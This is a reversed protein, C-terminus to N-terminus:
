RVPSGDGFDPAGNLRANVALEIMATLLLACFKLKMAKNADSFTSSKTEAVILEADVNHIDAASAHIDLGFVAMDLKLASFGREMQKWEFEEPATIEHTGVYQETSTGNVFTDSAGFVRLFYNAGVVVKRNNDYLFIADGQIHEAQEKAVTLTENGAVIGYRNGDVQLVYDGVIHDQRSGPKLAGLASASSIGKTDLMKFDSEAKDVEYTNNGTVTHILKSFVAGGSKQGFVGEAPNIAANLTAGPLSEGNPNLKYKDNGGEPTPSEPNGM